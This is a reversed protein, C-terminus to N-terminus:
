RVLRDRWFLQVCLLATGSPNLKSVFADHAGQDIFPGTLQADFPERVHFDTSGTTGIVYANGSGDVAIGDTNATVM